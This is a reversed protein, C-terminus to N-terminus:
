GGRRVAVGDDPLGRVEGSPELVVGLRAGQHDALVGVLQDPGPEEDGGKTSRPAARAEDRGHRANRPRRRLRAISDAHHLGLGVEAREDPARRLLEPRQM